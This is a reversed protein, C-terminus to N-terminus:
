LGWLASCRKQPESIRNRYSNSRSLDYPAHEQGLGLPCPGAPPSAHSRQTGLPGPVHTKHALKLVPLDLRFCPTPVSYGTAEAGGNSSLDQWSPLTKQKETESYSCFM